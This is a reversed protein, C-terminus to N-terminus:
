KVGHDLLQLSGGLAASLIFVLGMYFPLMTMGNRALTFALDPSMAPASLSFLGLLLGFIVASKKKPGMSKWPNEVRRRPLQKEALVRTAAEYQSISSVVDQPCVQQPSAAEYSETDVDKNPNWGFYLWAAKLTVAVVSFGLYGFIVYRAHIIATSAETMTPNFAAMVMQYVLYMLVGCAGVMCLLLMDAIGHKRRASVMWDQYYGCHPCSRFSERKNIYNQLNGELTPTLNAIADKADYLFSYQYRCNQCVVKEKEVTRRQKKAMTNGGSM